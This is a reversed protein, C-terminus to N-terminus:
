RLPRSPERARRRALALRQGHVWRAGDRCPSAPARGQKVSASGPSVSVAFDPRDVVQATSTATARVGNVKEVTTRVSFTGTATYTHTGVVDYGDGSAVLQGDSSGGDGWEIRAEYDSERATPDADTLRATNDTREIGVTANVNRPSLTLPDGLHDFRLDDLFVAANAGSEGGLQVVLFAVDPSPREIDM